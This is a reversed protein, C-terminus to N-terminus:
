KGQSNEVFYKKFVRWCNQYKSKWKNTQCSACTSTLRHDGFFYWSPFRLWWGITVLTEVLLSGHWPWLEPSLIPQGHVLDNPPIPDLTDQGFPPPGRRSSVFANDHPKLYSLTNFRFILYDVRYVMSGKRAISKRVGRIIMDSSWTPHDNWHSRWTKLFHWKGVKKFTIRHTWTENINPLTWVGNCKACLINSRAHPPQGRQNRCTSRAVKSTEIKLRM